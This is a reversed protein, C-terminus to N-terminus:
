RRRKQTFHVMESPEEEHFNQNERHKIVKGKHEEHRGLLGARDPVFLFLVQFMESGPDIDIPIIKRLMYGERRFRKIEM